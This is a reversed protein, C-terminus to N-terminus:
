SDYNNDKLYKHYKTHESNNKFLMLNELRNDDTVGNIHHVMEGPLLYRSISKEMILRHELVHKHSNHYPHEPSHIFIYGDDDKVRGGKWNPNKDGIELGMHAESIRKKHEESLKKGTRTNSMKLKSEETHKFGKPVSMKGGRILHPSILAVGKDYNFEM